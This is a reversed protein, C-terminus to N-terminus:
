TAGDGTTLTLELPTGPGWLITVKYEQAGFKSLEGPFTWRQSSSIKDLTKCVSVTYAVLIIEGLSM